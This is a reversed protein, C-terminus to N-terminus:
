NGCMERGRTDSCNRWRPNRSARMRSGWRQRIPNLFVSHSSLSTMGETACPRYPSPSYMSGITSIRESAASRSRKVSTRTPRPSSAFTRAFWRSAASASSSGPRYCGCCGCRCPWPFTASRMWFCPEVTLLNLGGPKASSPVPSRARRTVSFSAPSSVKPFRAATLM